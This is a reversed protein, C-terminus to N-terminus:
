RSRNLFYIIIHMILAIALILGGVLSVIKLIVMSYGSAYNMGKGNWTLSNAM